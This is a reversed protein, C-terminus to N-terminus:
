LGVRRAWYKVGRYTEALSFGLAEYKPVLKDSPEKLKVRQRGLIKAYNDAADVVIISVYGAIPNELRSRELYHITVNDPGRSTRGIGLALLHGQVWIAIEFRRLYPRTQGVIRRWPFEWNESELLAADTIATLDLGDLGSLRVGLTVHTRQRAATRYGEYKSEVLEKGLQVL